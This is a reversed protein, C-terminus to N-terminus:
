RSNWLQCQLTVQEHGPFSPNTILQSRLDLKWYKKKDAHTPTWTCLFSEQCLDPKISDQWSPERGSFQSGELFTWNLPSLKFELRLCLVDAGCGVPFYVYICKLPINPFRRLRGNSPGQSDNKSVRGKLSYFPSLSGAVCSQPVKLIRRGNGSRGKRFSIQMHKCWCMQWYMPSARASPRPPASTNPQSFHSAVKQSPLM